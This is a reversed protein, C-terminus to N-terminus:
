IKFHTSKTDIFIKKHYQNQTFNVNRNVNPLYNVNPLIGNSITSMRCFKASLPCNEVNPPVLDSHSCQATKKGFTLMRRNKVNPTVYIIIIYFYHFNKNVMYICKKRFNKKSNKFFASPTPSSVKKNLM